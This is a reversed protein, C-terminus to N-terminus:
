GPGRPGRQAPLPHTQRHSRLGREVPHRQGDAVHAAPCRLYGRVGPQLRSRFRVVNASWQVWQAADNGGHLARNNEHTM